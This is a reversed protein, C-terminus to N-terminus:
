LLHIRSVVANGVCHGLNLGESTGMPYHIGGYVRSIAAEDSAHSFSSFTRAELGRRLKTSDTFGVHGFVATFTRDSTGSLGSHGSVYEPFQPTPWSPKWTPDIHRRIYTEPRILNYQYKSQWIAIFADQYGISTLVYGSVAEALNRPRLFQTAIALWHGAPTATGGADAWFEGVRRQEKTLALDTQYVADAQQYFASGPSTSFPAPPPPACEDATTLALPRLDGFHPEVPPATKDTDSFGTPVWKDPGVPPIFGKYRAEGYGDAEIWDGLAGGLQTGYAVSSDIVSQAVGSAKRHGIQVPGLAELAAQSPSTFQIYVRNPHVYLHPM